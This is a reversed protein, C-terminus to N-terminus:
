TKRIKSVNTNKAKNEQTPSELSMQCPNEEDVTSAWLNEEGFSQNTASNHVKKGLCVVCVDCVYCM